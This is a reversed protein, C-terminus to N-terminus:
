WVVQLGAAKGLAEDRSLLSAGMAKATAAIIRDPMEPVAAPSIDRLHRVVELDLAVVRYNESDASLDVLIRDLLVGPIIGRENM